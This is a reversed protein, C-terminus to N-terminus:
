ARRRPETDRVLRRLEPAFAVPDGTTRVLLSSFPPPTRTSYTAPWYVEPKPERDLGDKLVNSVVGIIETFRTDGIALWKRGAVPQGDHLYRRVFEENVVLVDSPATADGPELFRGSTIRLGLAAGFGPTVKWNTAEALAPRGDPRASPLQLRTTYSETAFLAMNGAGAARVGPM